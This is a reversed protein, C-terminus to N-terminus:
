QLYRVAGQHLHERCVDLIAFTNIHANHGSLAAALFRHCLMTSPNKPSRRLPYFISDM